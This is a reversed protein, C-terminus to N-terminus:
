LCFRRVVTSASWDANRLQAMVEACLAVTQADKAARSFPSDQEEAEAEAQDKTATDSVATRRSPRARPPSAQRQESVKTVWQGNQEDWEKGTPPRGRPQPKLDEERVRKERAAKDVDREAQKKEKSWGM